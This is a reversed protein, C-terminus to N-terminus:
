PFPPSQEPELSCVSYQRLLSHLETLYVCWVDCQVTYRTIKCRNVLVSRALTGGTRKNDWHPANAKTGGSRQNSQLYYTYSTKARDRTAGVTVALQKAPVHMTCRIGSMKHMCTQIHLITSITHLIHHAHHSPTNWFRHMIAENKESWSKLFKHM